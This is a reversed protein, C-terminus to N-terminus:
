FAAASACTLMTPRASIYGLEVGGKACLHELKTLSGIADPISGSLRNTQLQLDVLASLSGIESRISGSLFNFALALTQLNM